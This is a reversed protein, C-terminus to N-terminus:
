GVRRCRRVRHRGRIRLLFRKRRHRGGPAYALIPLLLVGITRTTTSSLNRRGSWRLLLGGGAGVAAGAVVGIALELGAEALSAGPALGEEGAIVAIAFLVAPTAMGDNVGSEVNLVRRIRVPVVPNLVTAAGLGADTPTLAAALLLAVWVSM